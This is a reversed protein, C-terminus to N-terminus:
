RQRAAKRRFLPILLGAAAVFTVVGGGIALAVVIEGWAQMVFVTIYDLYGLAGPLARVSWGQYFALAPVIVLTVALMAFLAASAWLRKHFGRRERTELAVVRLRAEVREHLGMPVPRLPESKLASEIM